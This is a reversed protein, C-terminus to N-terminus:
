FVRRTDCSSGTRARTSTTSPRGRAGPRPPTRSAPAGRRRLRHAEAPGAGRGPLWRLAFGVSDGEEITFASRVTSSGDTEVPVGARSDCRRRAASPASATTSCACSRVTCARVRAAPRVGDGTGRKGRDGEVRACCSTRLTTLRPQPRAPGRRLGHRRDPARPRDGHHLHDRDRANGAPLPAQRFVGGGPSDVLPRCDPDLIRSLVAASDYRPLCLWDISGSRDVLAASNCDALLGYDAIPRYDPREHNM